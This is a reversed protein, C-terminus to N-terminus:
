KLKDLLQNTPSRSKQFRAQSKKHLEFIENTINNGQRIKNMITPTLEHAM